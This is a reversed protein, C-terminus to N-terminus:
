SLWLANVTTAQINGTHYPTSWWEYPRDYRAAFVSNDKALLNPYSVALEKLIDSTQAYEVAQQEEALTSRYNRMERDLDRAQWDTYIDFTFSLMRIVHQTTMNSTTTVGTVQEVVVKAYDIAIDMVTREAVEQTAERKAAETAAQQAISYVILYVGAVKVLPEVTKLFQGTSAAINQSGMMALAYTVIAIYLAAVTIITAIYAVAAAASAFSAGGSPIALIVAVVIIAVVLLKEYWELKKKRYGSDICSLFYKIRYERSFGTEDFFSAKLYYDYTPEITVVTEYDGISENYTVTQVEKTGTQVGLWYQSPTISIDTYAYDEPNVANIKNAVYKDSPLDTGNVANKTLISVASGSTISVNNLRVTITYSEYVATSDFVAGTPLTTLKDLVSLTKGVKEVTCFSAQTKLAYVALATIYPDEDNSDIEYGADLLTAIKSNIEAIIGPQDTVDTVIDLPYVTVPSTSTDLRVGLTLTVTQDNDTLTKLALQLNSAIKTTSTIDIGDIAKSKNLYLWASTIGEQKSKLASYMGLFKALKVTSEDMSPYYVKRKVFVETGQITTTGWYRKLKRLRALDYVYKATVVGVLDPFSRKM